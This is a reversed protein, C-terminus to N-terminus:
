PPPPAVRPATSRSKSSPRSSSVSSSIAGMSAPPTSHGIASPAKKPSSASVPPSKGPTLSTAPQDNQAARLPNPGRRAAQGHPSGAPWKSRGHQRPLPPAGDQRPETVPALPASPARLAARVALELLKDGDTLYTRDPEVVFVLVAEPDRGQEALLALLAPSLDEARYLWTEQVLRRTQVAPRSGLPGPDWAPTSRQSYSLVPPPGLLVLVRGRDTLSGRRREEGYLSDAAEVRDYFAQAVPNGPVDPDPDRRQWFAEIFAVAERNTRLRRAEREEEPLMLWRAPGNVWSELGGTGPRSGATQCGWWSGPWVSLAITLGLLTRRRGLGGRGAPAWGSGGTAGTM